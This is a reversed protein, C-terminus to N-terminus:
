PEGAWALHVMQRLVVALEGPPLKEMEGDESRTASVFYLAAGEWEAEELGLRIIGRRVEALRDRAEEARGRAGRAAARTLLELAALGEQCLAAMIGAPGRTPWPRPPLGPDSPQGGPGLVTLWARRWAALREAAPDPASPDSTLSAFDLWGDPATVARHFRARSGPPPAFPAGLAADLAALADAPTLDTACERGPCVQGERCPYCDRAPSVVLGFEPLHPGTARFRSRGLSLCVVPVALAAALHQPGTDATVIARCRALVAGLGGVTTRAATVLARGELMDALRRALGAEGPGGTIVLGAGRALLLRGLDRFSALPWRRDDKGAGPHLAVLPREGAPALLRTAQARDPPSLRLAPPGAPPPVGAALCYIDALHFPNTALGAWHLRLYTLWDGHTFLAGAADRDTGWLEAPRALGSLAAGVATFCPNIVLDYAGAWAPLREPTEGRVLAVLLQPELGHWARLPLLRAAEQHAAATALDVAAGPWRVALGRLLPELLLVDGLALHQIVLIRRM